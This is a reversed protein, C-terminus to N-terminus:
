CNNISYKIRNYPTILVEQTRLQENYPENFQLPIKILETRGGSYNLQNTDGIPPQNLDYENNEQKTYLDQTVPVSSLVVSKYAIPNVPPTLPYEYRTDLYNVNIKDEQKILNEDIETFQSENKKNKNLYFILFAFFAVLSAVIILYDM